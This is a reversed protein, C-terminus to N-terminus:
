ADRKVDVRPRSGQTGLAATPGHVLGPQKGGPARGLKLNVWMSLIMIKLCLLCEFKQLYILVELYIYTHIHSTYLYVHLYILNGFVSQFVGSPASTTM